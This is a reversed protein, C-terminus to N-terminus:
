KQRCGVELKAEAGLTPNNCRCEAADSLQWPQNAAASAPQNDSCLVLIAPQVLVCCSLRSGIALLSPPPPAYLRKVDEYGILADDFTANTLDAEEFVSGTIVAGCM